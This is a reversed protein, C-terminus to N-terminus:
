KAAPAAPAEDAKKEDAKKDAKKAGKKAGKKADKKADVKKDADPAKDTAVAKDAPAVPAAAKEAAMVSMSFAFVLAMVLLVLRKM